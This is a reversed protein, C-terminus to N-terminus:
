FRKEWTMGIISDPVMLKSIGINLSLELYDDVNPTFITSALREGM